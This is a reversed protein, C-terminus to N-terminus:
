SGENLIKDFIGALKKAANRRSFQKISAPLELRSNERPKEQWRKYQQLIYDAIQDPENLLVGMQSMAIVEAMAGKPYGTALIPRGAGLYEFIKGTVTGAARENNWELLLLLDSQCQRYLSEKYPIPHHLECFKEVGYHQATPGVLVDMSPGYFRLRLKEPTILDQSALKKVAQFVPAPDRKGQIILGTYSITFHDEQVVKAPYEAGDFGNYIVEVPKCHFRNLQAAIPSSVTVLTQAKRLVLRELVRDLEDLLLIDPSYPNNAWPDRFDAVWPVKAKGALLSAVIHSSPPSHSSFIIDPQYKELLKLGLPLAILAWTLYIDPMRTSSLIGLQQIRQNLPIKFNRDNPRPSGTLTRANHWQKVKVVLDSIKPRFIDPEQRSSNGGALVIPQYGFEPLYQQFKGIRLAGMGPLPPFKYSVILVKTM